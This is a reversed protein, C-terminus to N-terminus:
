PLLLIGGSPESINRSGQVFPWVQLVWSQVSVQHAPSLVLTCLDTGQAAGLTPHAKSDSKGMFHAYCVRVGRLSNTVGSFHSGPSFCPRTPTCIMPLASPSSRTQPLIPSTGFQQEAMATSSFPFLFHTSRGPTMQPKPKTNPQGMPGM